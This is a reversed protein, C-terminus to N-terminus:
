AHLLSLQKQNQHVKRESFCFCNFCYMFSIGAGLEVKGPQFEMLMGYKQVL